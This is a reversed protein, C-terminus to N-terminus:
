ELWSACGCGFPHGLMKVWIKASTSIRFLLNRKCLVQTKWRQGAAVRDKSPTLLGAVKTKLCLNPPCLVHTSYPHLLRNWPTELRWFHGDPAGSKLVNRSGEQSDRCLTPRSTPNTVVRVVRRVDVDSHLPQFDRQGLLRVASRDWHLLLLQFQIM